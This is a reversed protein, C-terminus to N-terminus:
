KNQQFSAVIEQALFNEIRAENHVQEAYATSLLQQKRNRLESRISANVEADQLTKQGPQRKGLLKLIWFGEPTQMVPTTDGINMKLIVQKLQPGLRDLTSEAQYGLDGGERATQPDESLERAVQQFDQGGKLMAQVRQVKMIAQEQNLAKDNRSNTVPVSPNPTVVIQGLHYQPERVNFSEKNEEYFRSVESDTVEIKSGIQNEVLKQVTLTRRIENRMNQESFGRRELDKRFQEPTVPGRLDEFQKDIEADKVELKLQSAKQAMLEREILDRVIEMKALAAAEGAPKQGAQQTKFEFYKDVESRLIDKGNVRAAVNSNASDQQAAKNCGFSVATLVVTVALVIKNRM